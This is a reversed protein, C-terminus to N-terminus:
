HDNWTNEGADIGGNNNKDWSRVGTQDIEIFGNDAQPTGAKPTARLKYTTATPPGELTPSFDIDYKAAGDLPAKDPFDTGAAAGVYTNDKKANYREMAQAASQLVTMADKRNTKVIHQQYSPVAVAALIAVIAVVIMLEILTFGRQLRKTGRVSRM